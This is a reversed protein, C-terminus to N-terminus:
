ESLLGHVPCRMAAKELRQVDQESLDGRVHVTNEVHYVEDEGEGRWEGGIETWLKEVPIDQQAAYHYVTILTCSGLSGLLSEFPNPGLDDGDVSEPEDIIWSHGESIAQIQYNELHRCRVNHDM